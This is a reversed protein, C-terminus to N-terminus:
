KGIMKGNEDFTRNGGVSCSIESVKEKSVQCYHLSHSSFYQNCEYCDQATSGNCKIEVM